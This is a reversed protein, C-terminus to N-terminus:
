PQTSELLLIQIRSPESPLTANSSQIRAQTVGVLHRLLLQARDRSVGVLQSQLQLLQQQSFRYSYLGSLQLYFTVHDDAVTAGAITVHIDGWLRYQTGLQQAALAGLQATAAQELELAHYAATNCTEAVTVTIHDAETGPQASSTPTTACKPPLLVEGALLQARLTSQMRDDVQRILPTSASSIDAITPTRYSRADAGGSFRGSYALVYARCCPGSIAGAALNDAMGPNEAQASVTRVGDTPPSAAPIYADEETLVPIGGSSVLQTGAPITQPAPLANYFTVSGHAASAPQVATGTTAVTRSLSEHQASFVRAGATITVEGALTHAEPTLTITASGVLLPALVLTLGVGLTLSLVAIAAVLLAPM